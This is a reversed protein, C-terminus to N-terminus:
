VAARNTPGNEEDDLNSKTGNNNTYVNDGLLDISAPIIDKVVKEKKRKRKNKSAELRAYVTNIFAVNNSRDNKVIEYIENFRTIGENKWGKRGKPKVSENSYHCGGVTYKPAVDSSLLRQKKKKDFSLVYPNSENKLFMDLWREYYNEALLLAFAEDSITCLENFGNLNLANNWLYSGTVRSVVLTYFSAYLKDNQRGQLLDYVTPYIVNNGTM